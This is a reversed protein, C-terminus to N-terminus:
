PGVLSWVLTAGSVAMLSGLLRLWARWARGHRVTKRFASILKDSSTLILATVAVLGGFAMVGTPYRTTPAVLLLAGACLAGIALGALRSLGHRSESITEDRSALTQGPAATIALGLGVMWTALGFVITNALTLALTILRDLEETTVSPTVPPTCHTIAGRLSLRNFEAHPREESLAYEALGTVHDALGGKSPRQPPARM